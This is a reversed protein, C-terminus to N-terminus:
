AVSRTLRFLGYGAAGAGLACLVIGAADRAIEPIKGRWDIVHDRRMSADVEIAREMAADSRATARETTM